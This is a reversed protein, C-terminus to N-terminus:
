IIEEISFIEKMREFDFFVDKIAKMKKLEAPTMFESALAIDHAYESKQTSKQCDGETYNPKGNSAMCIEHASLHYMGRCGHALKREGAYRYFIEFASSYIGANAVLVLREKNANMAHILMSAVSCSGGGSGFGITIPGENSSIFDLIKQGSELNIEENFLLYKM